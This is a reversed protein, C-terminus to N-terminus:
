NKTDLMKLVQNIAEEVAEPKDLMIHHGAGPVVKQIGRRSLKSQEVHLKKWLDYRAQWEARAKTSIEEPPVKSETLVILPIDGFSRRAKRLQEESTLFFNELESVQAQWFPLRMQFQDTAVQVANSLQKYQEFKCKTHIETGEVFGLKAQNLCDKQTQIFANLESQWESQTKSPNLKRSETVQNEDSPDVLVMAVVEDPYTHAFLRASLGGTSHGVLVYPPQIKATKLLRYLDDVINESTAPRTLPDSFGVGARDYSCAKTSKAISPQVWGWNNIPETLGSEFIITPSGEGLCYLNLKRDGDVKVLRSPKIYPAGDILPREIESANVALSSALLITAM